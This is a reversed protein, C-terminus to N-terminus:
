RDEPGVLAVKRHFQVADPWIVDPHIPTGLAYSRLISLSLPRPRDERHTRRGIGNVVGIHAVRPSRSHAGSSRATIPRRDLGLAIPEHEAPSSLDGSAENVRRAL